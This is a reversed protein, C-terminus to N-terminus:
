ARASQNWIAEAFCMDSNNVRPYMWVPPGDLLYRSLDLPRVLSGVTDSNRLREMSRIWDRPSQFTEPMELTQFLAQSGTKRTRKLQRNKIKEGSQRLSPERLGFQCVHGVEALSVYRLTYSM